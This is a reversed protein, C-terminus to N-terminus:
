SDQMGTPKKKRRNKKEVFYLQETYLIFKKHWFYAFLNNKFLVPHKIKSFFVFLEKKRLLTM